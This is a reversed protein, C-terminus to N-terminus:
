CNGDPIYRVAQIEQCCYHFLFKHPSHVSSGTLLPEINKGDLILESYIDNTKQKLEIERAERKFISETITPLIDMLSTPTSIITNPQIKNKWRAVAPVRIGGDMVSQGKCGRLIGNYGGHCGGGPGTESTLGGNDSTLYVFTNESIKLRELAEMVAGVGWDMEEVNDGYQGFASHNQFNNSTNLYTHVQFWSIVTFFPENNQVKQEIFSVSQDVLRKTLSGFRVPQEIVTYDKMVMSNILKMNCIHWIMYLFPVHLMLNLVIITRRKILRRKLLFYSIIVSTLFTRFFLKLTFSRRGSIASYGWLGGGEPGYDAMNTMPFGYFTDFGHKMPHHCFDHADNCSLGLHWKGFFGTSYNYHKALRAITTENQTLGGSSSSFIIVPFADNHCAMGSRIPYRGTLLAARSPTCLSDAALHHVLTAGEAAIKDINPTKITDNGFAGLDGYGLDDVIFIIVNTKSSHHPSGEANAIFQKALFILFVPFIYLDM